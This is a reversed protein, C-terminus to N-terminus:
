ASSPMRSIWEHSSNLRTSKRDQIKKSINKQFRDVHKKENKPKTLKEVLDEYEWKMEVFKEAAEKKEHEGSYMDPHLAKAHERYKEHAAEVSRINKFYKM